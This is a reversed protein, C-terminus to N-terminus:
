TILHRSAPNADEAPPKIDNPWSSPRHFTQGAAMAQQKPRDSQGTRMLLALEVRNWVGMKKFIRSLENRVSQEKIKLRRAIERNPYAQAVLEAIRKQAPSLQYLELMQPKADSRTDDMTNLIRVLHVGASSFSEASSNLMVALAGPCSEHVYRLIRLREPNQGESNFEIIVGQVDGKQLIQKARVSDATVSVRWGSEHLSNLFGEPISENLPVLLLNM